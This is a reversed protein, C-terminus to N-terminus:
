TGLVNDIRDFKFNKLLIELKKLSSKINYYSIFGSFFNLKIKPTNNCCEWPHIYIIFPQKKNIQKLLKKQMYVPFLRLYFGGSVPFKFNLIKFITIPFETLSSKSDHIKIDSSNLGYINLPAGNVGYLNNIKVPFISSDYKFNYEKLIDIAWATKQNLSFSPARFGKIQINGLIDTITERFKSLEKRLGDPGNEQLTWHYFGHSAIEHGEAHIRKILEPNSLAIEGLIFFTAKTNYKRLLALLADTSPTILNKDPLNAYKRILQPHYWDELDISLANIRRNPNM